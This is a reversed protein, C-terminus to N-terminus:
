RFLRKEDVCFLNNGEWTNGDDDKAFLFGGTVAVSGGHVIKWGGCPPVEWWGQSVYTKDQQGFAISVYVKAATDNQM